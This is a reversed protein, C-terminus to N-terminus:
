WITNKSARIFFYPIVITDFLANIYITRAILQMRSTQHNSGKSYHTFTTDSARTAYAFIVWSRHPAHGARAVMECDYYTYYVATYVSLPKVRTM